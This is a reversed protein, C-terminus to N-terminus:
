FNQREVYLQWCDVMDVALAVLILVHFINHSSGFFDTQGNLWREPIKTLYLFTGIFYIAGVDSLKSWNPPLSIAPDYKFQLFLIPVLFSLGFLFFVLVRMPPSGFKPKMTCYMCIACCVTIISVFIYRFVIMSGCAYKYSIQPYASGLFLVAIGWYDLKAVMDCIRPDKVYCLHCVSSCIM